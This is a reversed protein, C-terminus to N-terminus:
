VKCLKCGYMTKMNNKIFVHVALEKVFIFEGLVM